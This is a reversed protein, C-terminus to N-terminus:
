YKKSAQNRIVLATIKRKTDGASSVNTKVSQAQDFDSSSVRVRYRNQTNRITKGGCKRKNCQRDASSHDVVKIMPVDEICMKLACECNNRYM